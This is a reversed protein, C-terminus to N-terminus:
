ARRSAVRVQEGPSWAMTCFIRLFPAYDEPSMDELWQYSIDLGTLAFKEAYFLLKAMVEGAWEDDDPEGSCMMHCDEQATDATCFTPSETYYDRWFNKPIGILMLSLSNVAVDDLLGDFTTGLDGCNVYGGIFYHVPGHPAYGATWVYDYWTDYAPDFTMNYHSVCSPWLDLSFTEGCFSHARTLYPSKNVNWPARLYGYPNVALAGQAGNSVRQYAFRGKEVVHAPSGTANGFWDDSWLDTQWLGRSEGGYQTRALTEDETIDRRPAARAPSLRRSVAVPTTVAFRRIQRRRRTAVGASANTDGVIRQLAAPNRRAGGWTRSAAASLMRAVLRGDWRWWSPSSAAAGPRPPPARSNRRARTVCVCWYPLAMNPKISQLSLEFSNSLAVHQTLFGMGDHM